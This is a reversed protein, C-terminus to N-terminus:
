LQVSRLWLIDVTGGTAYLHRASSPQHHPEAGILHCFRSGLVKVTKSHILPLSLSQKQFSYIPNPCRAAGPTWIWQTKKGEM